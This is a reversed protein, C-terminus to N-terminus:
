RSVLDPPRSLVDGYGLQIFRVIATLRKYVVVNKSIRCGELLGLIGWKSGNEAQNLVPNLVLAMEKM